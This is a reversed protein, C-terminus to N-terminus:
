SPPVPQTAEPYGSSNKIGFPVHVSPVIGSTSDLHIRQDDFFIHPAFQKLIRAKDIGGLFFVEDVEIGWARLTSVMRKHAPANRATIIAVRVKPQYDPNLKARASEREQIEAIKVLLERLPGPSHPVSSKAVESEQFAALDAQHYVREAEDDILVGDFDFAIRLEQEVPDDQYQTDLVQGAPYGAMIAEKVDEANASLFLCIGFAPIYKYPKQGRVFAARTIDLGHAEISNMVRLGTDPDNRSLLIVEVPHYDRVNIGLLRRIFPFAVGPRLIDNEHARQFARYADTGQTRFIADSETLDFLASSAIGVVLKGEIPFPM